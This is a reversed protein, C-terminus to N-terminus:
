FLRIIDRLQPDLMPFDLFGDARLDVKSIIYGYLLGNGPLAAPSATWARHSIMWFYWQPAKAPLM